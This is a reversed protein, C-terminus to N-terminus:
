VALEELMSILEDRTAEEYVNGEMDFALQSEDGCTDILIRLLGKAIQEKIRADLHANNCIRKLFEPKNTQAYDVFLGSGRVVSRFGAQYLAVAAIADACKRELDERDLESLDLYNSLTERKIVDVGSMQLENIRRSMQAYLGDTIRGDAM